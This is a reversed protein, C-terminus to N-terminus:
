MAASVLVGTIVGPRCIGVGSNMERSVPRLYYTKSDNSNGHYMHPFLPKSIYCLKILDFCLPLLVCFSRGETCKWNHFM